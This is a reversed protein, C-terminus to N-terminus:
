KSKVCLNSEEDEEEGWTRKKRRRERGLRERTRETREGYEKEELKKEGGDCIEGYTFTVAHITV